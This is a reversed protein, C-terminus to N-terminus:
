YRTWFELEIATLSEVWGRALLTKSFNSDLRVFWFPLYIALAAESGVLVIGGVGLPTGIFLICVALWAAAYAVLLVTTELLRRTGALVATAQRIALLGTEFETGVSSAETPAVPTRRLLHGADTWRLSVLWFIPLVGAVEALFLYNYWAGATPHGSFSLWGDLALAITALGFGSLSLLLVQAAQRFEPLSRALLESVGGVSGHISGPSDSAISSPGSRSQGPASAERPPPPLWSSAFQEVVGQLRRLTGRHLFSLMLWVALVPVVFAAEWWVGLGAIAWTAYGSLYPAGSWLFLVTAAVGFLVNEDRIRQVEECRGELGVVSGFQLRFDDPARALRRLEVDLGTLKRRGLYYFALGVGESIPFLWLITPGAGAGWYVFNYLYADTAWLLAVVAKLLLFGLGLILACVLVLRDVVVISLAERVQGLASPLSPRLGPVSSM